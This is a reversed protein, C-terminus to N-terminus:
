PEFLIHTFKKKMKDYTIINFYMYWFKNYFYLNYSNNKSSLGELNAFFFQFDIPNSNFTFMYRNNYDYSWFDRTLKEEFVLM